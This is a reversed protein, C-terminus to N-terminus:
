DAPPGAQYVDHLRLLGLCQGNEVVPLVSIQSPRDEMLILADKLLAAPDVTLPAKTMVDEARLIRIDDHGELARRVDGDTIIGALAGNADVVCAAGLARRSMAIVVQKLPDQRRVWAVEDGCHMADKVQIRLSRGLHGGKHLRLFDESTFGRAQMVAVALAHGLALAVASSATPVFGDPDAERPVSGDLVVDMESALPSKTNGIIGVFACRLDRLSAALHLLETTTGSKSIMLVADGAQCLGLDGHPAESPHLFVAPTGTSQLAAAIKRALHGSKGIGSVIVKGAHPATTRSLILDVAPGLAPELRGAACRIAEAEAEM